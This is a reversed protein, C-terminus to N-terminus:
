VVKSFVDRCGSRKRNSRAIPESVRRQLFLCYESSATVEDEFLNELFYIQRFIVPSMVMSKRSAAEELKFRKMASVVVDRYGCVASFDRLEQVFKKQFIPLM